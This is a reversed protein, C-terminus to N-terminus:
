KCSRRHSRKELSLFLPASKAVRAVVNDALARQAHLTSALLILVPRPRGGHSLRPFAAAVEIIIAHRM